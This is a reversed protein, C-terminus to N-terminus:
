SAKAFVKALQEPSAQVGIHFTAPSFKFNSFVRVTAGSSHEYSSGYIDSSFDGQSSGKTGKMAAEKFGLGKLFAKALHEKTKDSLKATLDAGRPGIKTNTSTARAGCAQAIQKVLMMLDPEKAENLDEKVADLYPVMVGKVIKEYAQNVKKEGYSNKTFAVPLEDKHKSRAEKGHKQGREFHDAVGAGIGTDDARGSFGGRFGRIYANKAKVDDAQKPKSANHQRQIESDIISNISMKSYNPAEFLESVKM